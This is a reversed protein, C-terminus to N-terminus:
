QNPAARADRAPTRRSRRRECLFFRRQESRRLVAPARNGVSAASAAIDSQTDGAHDPLYSWTFPTGEGSGVLPQESSGPYPWSVPRRSDRSTPELCGDRVIPRGNQHGIVVLCNNSERGDIEVNNRYPEPLPGPDLVQSHRWLTAGAPDPLRQQIRGFGPSAVM